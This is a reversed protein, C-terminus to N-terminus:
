LAARALLTAAAGLAQLDAGLRELVAALAAAAAADRPRALLEAHADEILVAAATGLLGIAECALNEDVM